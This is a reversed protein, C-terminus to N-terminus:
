IHSFVSVMSRIVPSCPFSNSSVETQFLFDLMQCHILSERRVLLWGTKVYPWPLPPVSHISFVSKRIALDERDQHVSPHALFVQYELDLRSPHLHLISCYIAKHYPLSSSQFSSFRGKLPLHIPSNYSQVSVGLKSPLFPWELSCLM